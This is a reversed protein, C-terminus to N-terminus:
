LQGSFRVSGIKHNAIIAAVGTKLLPFATGMREPLKEVIPVANGRTGGRFSGQLPGLCSMQLLSGLIAIQVSSLVHGCLNYLYTPHSKGSAISM